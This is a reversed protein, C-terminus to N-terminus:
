RRARLAEVQAAYTDRGEHVIGPLLDGFANVEFVVVDRHNAALGLDVAVALCTPFARAATEASAELRAWLTEGLERRLSALEGRRNGLHLNTFPSRSMRVVAHRARGAIVLVRLDWASGQWVAKPVWQEAVLEEPALQDLLWLIEAPNQYTRPKLNNFLRGGVGEMELTTTIREERDRRRYALIGAASSGYRPKLFLRAFRRNAHVARVEAPTSLCGHYTPRPAGAGVLRQHSEHKDFMAVIAQPPCCWRTNPNAKELHLLLDRWGLFLDRGYGQQGHELPPPEQECGRTRPGRRILAGQVAANEGPSEIRVWDADPLVWNARGVLLDEYAIEVAPPLGFAALAQQFLRVRRNEPNGVVVLRM